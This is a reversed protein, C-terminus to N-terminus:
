ELDSPLLNLSLKSNNILILIKLTVIDTSFLLHFKLRYYYSYPYLSQSLGPLNSIKPYLLYTEFM